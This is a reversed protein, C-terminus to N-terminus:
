VRTRKKLQYEKRINKVMLRGYMHRIITQNMQNMMAKVNRRKKM